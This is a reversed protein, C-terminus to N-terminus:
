LLMERSHILVQAMTPDEASELLILSKSVHRIQEEAQSVYQIASTTDLMDPYRCARLLIAFRHSM